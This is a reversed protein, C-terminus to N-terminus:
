KIIKLKNRTWLVSNLANLNFEELSEDFVVFIIM